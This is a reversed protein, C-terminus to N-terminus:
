FWQHEDRLTIFAKLLFSSRRKYSAFTDIYQHLMDIVHDQKSQDIVAKYTATTVSHFKQIM